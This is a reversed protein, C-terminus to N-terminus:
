PTGGPVEKADTAEEPSVETKTAAAATTKTTRRVGPAQLAGRVVGVGGFPLTFARGKRSPMPPAVRMAALLPHAPMLSMSIHM